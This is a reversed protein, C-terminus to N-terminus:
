GSFTLRYFYTMTTGLGATIGGIGQDTFTWLMLQNSVFNGNTGLATANYKVPINLKRFDNVFVTEEAVTSQTSRQMVYVKDSLVKYQAMFNIDRAALVNHTATLTGLLETAYQSGSANPHLDMFLIQRVTVPVVIESGSDMKYKMHFARMTLHRGIRQNEAGGQGVLCIDALIHAGDWGINTTTTQGFEVRKLERSGVVRNYKSRYSMRNRPIRAKRRYRKNYFRPNYHSSAYPYVYGGRKRGYRQRVMPMAIDETPVNNKFEQYYDEVFQPIEKGFKRRKSGRRDTSQRKRKYPPMYVGQKFVPDPLSATSAIVPTVHDYKSPPTDFYPSIYNIFSDNINGTAAEAVDWAVSWPNM